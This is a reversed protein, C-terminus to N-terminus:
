LLRNRTTANICIEISGMYTAGVPKCLKFELVTVAVAPPLRVRLQSVKSTFGDGLM